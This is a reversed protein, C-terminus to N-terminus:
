ACNSFVVHCNRDPIVPLALFTYLVPRPLTCTNQIGDRSTFIFDGRDPEKLDRLLKNLIWCSLGDLRFTDVTAIQSPAFLDTQISSCFLSISATECGVYM